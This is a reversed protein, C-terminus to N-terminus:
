WVEFGPAGVELGVHGAVALALADADDPSRGLRAKIADKPELIKARGSWKYTPALLEEELDEDPDFAAEDRLWDRLRWWLETRRNSWEAPDTARAGFQNEYVELDAPAEGRDQLDYVGDVAGTISGVDIAVSVAGRDRAAQVTARALEGGQAKAKTFVCSARVGDSEWLKSLDDGFRACDLGLRVLAGGPAEVGAALRDRAAQIHEYGILGDSAAPPFQADVLAKYIASDKGYKREQRAVWKRSALGPIVDRGAVFNPTETSKVRLTRRLGPEDPDRCAKAFPHGPGCKPNGIRLIRDGDGSACSEVGDFVFEALGAAEDEIVLVNRGHFGHLANVDRGVVGTAYWKPGIKLYPDAPLLNGGLPARSGAYASRIEGWLIKRVQAEKPATTVVIGQRTFLWWLAIRAALWDKGTAHGSVVNTESNEVVSRCIDEQRSWPTDGLWTRIWGAPDQRWRALATRDRQRDRSTTAM